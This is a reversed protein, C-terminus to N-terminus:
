VHYKEVILMIISAKHEKYYNRTKSPPETTCPETQSLPALKIRVRLLKKTLFTTNENVRISSYPRYNGPESINNM